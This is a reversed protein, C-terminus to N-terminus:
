SDAPRANRGGTRPVFRAGRGPRFVPARLVAVLHEALSIAGLQDVQQAVGRDQLRRRGQASGVRVCQPHGAVVLLREALERGEHLDGLALPPVVAQGAPHGGHVVRSALLVAGEGHEVAHRRALDAEVVVADAPTGAAGLHERREAAVLLRVLEGLLGNSDGLRDAVGPRHGLRVGGHGPRAEARPLLSVVSERELGGGLGAVGQNGDPNQDVLGTQQERRGAVLLGAVHGAIRHPEGLEAARGAPVGDRQVVEPLRQQSDALVVLRHPLQLPRHRHEPREAGSPPRHSQNADGLDMALEAVVLLAPRRELLGDIEGAAGALDLQLHFRKRPEGLQEGADCGVFGELVRPLGGAEGGRGQHGEREARQAPDHEGSPVPLRCRVPGVLRYGRRARHLRQVGEGLRQLELAAAVSSGPAARWARASASAM